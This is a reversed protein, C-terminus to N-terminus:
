FQRKLPLLHLGEINLVTFSKTREIVKYSIVAKFSQGVKLEGLTPVIIENIRFVPDITPPKIRVTRKFGAKTVTM